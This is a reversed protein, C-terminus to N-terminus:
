DPSHGEDWHLHQLARRAILWSIAATPLEIFVALIIARVRDHGSSTVVDFWADAVLLTCTAVAPMVIVRSGTWALYATRALAVVILLDFGVWAFDYHRAVARRPLTVALYATWPILVIAMVVYLRSVLRRETLHPPPPGPDTTTM